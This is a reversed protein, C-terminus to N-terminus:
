ETANKDDQEIFDQPHRVAITETFSIFKINDQKPKGEFISEKTNCEM